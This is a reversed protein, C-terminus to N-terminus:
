EVFGEVHHGGALEAGGCVNEFVTEVADEVYGVGPVGDEEEVFGVDEELFAGHVVEVAVGEDGDEEAEEFVEM